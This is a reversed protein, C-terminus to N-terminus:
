PEAAHPHELEIRLGAQAVVAGRVLRDLVLGVGVVADLEAAAEAVGAFARVQQMGVAM